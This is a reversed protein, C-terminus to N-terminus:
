ERPVADAAAPHLLPLPDPSVRFVLPAEMKAIEGDTAVVIPRGRRRAPVFADLPAVDLQQFGFSQVERAKKLQGFAGRLMLKFLALSGVPRLAIGVLQDVAAVDDVGIQELQLDNNAIFLTQAHLMREVGGCRLKLHLSRRAGLATAFASGFAVVRSRGFRQKHMERAQLVRPYLGLSANVLFIRDNVLGVQAPRVEAHLLARSAAAPESPIGHTRAFYNFTGLPIVGFPRGSGLVAQAVGNLTGDGGAGIVAGADAHAAEVARGAVEAVSGGREIAHFRHVRGAAEFTEEIIRRVATTGQHGSGANMVVHLTTDAGYRPLQM